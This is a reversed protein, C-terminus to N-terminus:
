LLIRVKDDGGEWPEAQVPCFLSSQCLGRCPSPFNRVRSSIFGWQSGRKREESCVTSTVSISALGPCFVLLYKQLGPQFQLLVLLMCQGLTGLIKSKSCLCTNQATFLPCVPAAHSFVVCCRCSAATMTSPIHRHVYPSEAEGLQEEAICSWASCSAGAWYPAVRWCYRLLLVFTVPPQPPPSPHSLM